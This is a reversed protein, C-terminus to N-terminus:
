GESETKGTTACHNVSLWEASKVVEPSLKKLDPYYTTVMVMCHYWTMLEHQNRQYANWSYTACALSVFVRRDIHCSQVDEVGKRKAERKAKRGQRKWTM